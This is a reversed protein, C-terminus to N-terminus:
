GGCGQAFADVFGTVDQLDYLDDGNFDVTPNAVVDTQLFTEVWALIDALDLVGLPLALDARSCPEGLYVLSGTFSCAESYPQGETDLATAAAVLSFFWEEGPDLRVITTRPGASRGIDDTGYTMYPVLPLGQLRSIGTSVRSWPGTQDPAPTAYDLSADLIFLAPADVTFGIVFFSGAEGISGDPEPSTGTTSITALGNAILIDPAMASSQTAVCEVTGSLYSMRHEVEFRVFDADPFVPDYTEGPLTGGSLTEYFGGTSVSRRDEILTMQGSSIATCLALGSAMAIPNLGM